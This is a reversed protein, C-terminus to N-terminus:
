RHEIVIKGNARNAVMLAHAEQLEELAFRPDFKLSGLLALKEPGGSESIVCARMTSM